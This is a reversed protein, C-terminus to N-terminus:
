GKLFENLSTSLCDIVATNLKDSARTHGNDPVERGLARVVDLVTYKFLSAPTVHFGGDVGIKSQIIGAERLQSLSRVVSDYPAHIENAVDNASCYLESDQSDALVCMVRLHQLANFAHLINVPFLLQPTQM